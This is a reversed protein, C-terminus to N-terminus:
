KAVAGTKAKKQTKAKKGTKEKVPASTEVKPAVVPAGSIAATIAADDEPALYQELREMIPDLVDVWATPNKSKREVCAQIATNLRSKFAFAKIMTATLKTEGRGPQQSDPNAEVAATFKEWLAKFAPGKSATDRTLLPNASKDAVFAAHLEAVQQYTPFAVKPNRLKEKWADHLVTIDDAWRCTRIIGRYQKFVEPDDNAANPNKDRAHVGFSGRLIAVTEPESKGMKKCEVINLHLGLKTLPEEKASHDMKLMQQSMKNLGRYIRAEISQYAPNKPDEERLKAYALFRRNGRLIDLQGTEPDFHLAPHTTPKPLGRLVPVLALANWKNTTYEEGPRVNANEDFTVNKWPVTEITYTFGHEDLYTKQGKTDSKPMGDKAAKM